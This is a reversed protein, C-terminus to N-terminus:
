KLLTMKRTEVFNNATLKYFYIGSTLESGDLEIEYSGPAKTDNLLVKVKQGLTNFLEIKVNGSEKIDYAIKTTPNFPNPYNQHLSFNNVIEENDDVSVTWDGDNVQIKIPRYGNDVANNVANQYDTGSAYNFIWSGGEGDNSWVGAYYYTGNLYYKEYDVLRFGESANTNDKDIFDQYSQNVAMRQAYSADVSIGGYYTTGDLDRYIEIDIIRRSNNYQENVWDYISNVTSRTFTWAFGENDAKGVAGFNLSSGDFYFAFNTPRYRTSQNPWENLKNIFANKDTYNLSYTWGENDDTWTGAYKFSEVGYKDVSEIRYGDAAYNNLRTQFDQWNQGYWYAWGNSRSEFIMSYSFEDLQSDSYNENKIISGIESEIDTGAYIPYLKNVEGKNEEVLIKGVESDYTVSYNSQGQGLYKIDRDPIEIGASNKSVPTPVSSIVGNSNSHQKSSQSNINIIFLSILFSYLLIRSRM